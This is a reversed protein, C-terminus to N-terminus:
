PRDEGTVDEVTNGSTDLLVSSISLSHTHICADSLEGACSMLCLKSLLRYRRRFCGNRPSGLSQSAWAHVPLLHSGPAPPNPPSQSSHRCIAGLHPLGGQIPARARTGTMRVVRLAAILRNDSDLRRPLTDLAPSKPLSVQPSQTREM